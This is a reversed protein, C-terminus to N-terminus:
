KGKLVADDIYKFKIIKTLWVNNESKYFKLGDKIMKLTNIQLVILKGHRKGVICATQLNPSLHVHHRNMKLIAKSKRILEFNKESTGHYLVMPPTQSKLGLDIDISHGQSARVSLGDESITFRKKDNTKVVHYFVDKEIKTKELFEKISIWGHEKLTIGVDQPNHRLIYSMYKSVKKYEDKKM